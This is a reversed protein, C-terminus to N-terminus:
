FFDDDRESRPLAILGLRGGERRREERERELRARLEEMEKEHERDRQREREQWEAKQRELDLANQAQWEAKQRELEAQWGAKRRELEARWKREGWRIWLCAMWGVAVGLFFASVVAWRPAPEVFM